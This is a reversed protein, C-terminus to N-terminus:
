WGRRKERRYERMFSKCQDCRCRQANYGNFTGHQYTDAPRTRKVKWARRRRRGSPGPQHSWFFRAPVPEGDLDRFVEPSISGAATNRHPRSYDDFLTDPPTNNKRM